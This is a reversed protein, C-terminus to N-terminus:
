LSPVHLNRVSYEGIGKIIRLYKIDEDLSPDDWDIHLDSSTADGDRSNHNFTNSLIEDFLDDQRTRHMSPQYNVFVLTFLDISPLLVKHIEHMALFEGRKQHKLQCIHLYVMQLLITKKLNIVTMGLGNVM